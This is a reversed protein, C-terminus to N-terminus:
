PRDERQIRFIFEGERQKDLKDRAVAELFEPDSRLWELENRLRDREAAKEDRIATLDQVDANLERARQVEPWFFRLIVGLAGLFLIVLMLQSLRQWVCPRLDLEDDDGTFHPDELIPVNRKGM